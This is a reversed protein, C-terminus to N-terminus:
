KKEAEDEHLMHKLAERYLELARDKEGKQELVRGLYYRTLDPNSKLKLAEELLSQAEDLKGQRFLSMGKLQKWRPTDLQANKLLDEARDVDGSSISFEALDLMIEANAPEIKLATNLEGIAGALDGRERMMKALSRHAAAASKPTGEKPRAALAATLGNDDLQGLAHRLHADLSSNYDNGFLFIASDLKGEKNVVITTPFAILGLKGYLSREADFALPATIAHEQRYKEFYVRHEVDSTLHVVKIQDSGLDKVVQLSALAALESNKQEAALCVMVTVFGSRSESDLISGDIATLKYAPFAEGHKLNRLDDGGAGAGVGALALAIATSKLLKFSFM